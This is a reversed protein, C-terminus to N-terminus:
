TRGCRGGPLKGARREPGTRKRSWLLGGGGHRVDIATWVASSEASTPVNRLGDGVLPRHGGALAGPDARGQGDAVGLGRTM